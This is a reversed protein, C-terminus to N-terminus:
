DFEVRVRARVTEDLQDPSMRVRPTAMRVTLDVDYEVSDAGTTPAPLTLPTHAPGAAAGDVTWQGDVATGDPLDSLDPVLTGDQVVLGAPGVVDTFRFIRRVIEDGCVPCLISGWYRM